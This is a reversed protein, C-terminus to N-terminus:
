FRIGLTLPVLTYTDSDKRFSHVVRGEVFLSRGFGIGVGGEVAVSAHTNVIVLNTLQQEYENRLVGAGLTLYPGGHGTGFDARFMGTFINSHDNVSQKNKAYLYRGELSFTVKDNPLLYGVTAAGNIGTKLFDTQHGVPITVGGSISGVWHGPDPPLAQATLPRAAAISAVVSGVLIVKLM